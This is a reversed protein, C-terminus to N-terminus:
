RLNKFTKIFQPKLFSNMEYQGCLGKLKIADYKANPDLYPISKHMLFKRYFYKLDIMKKNLIMLEALKENDIKGFKDGSILFEKVSGYKELLQSTRKPGMGPYGPIHDSKDGMLSLYDVCQYAHYGVEKHMNSYGYIKGKTTNYISIEGNTDDPAQALQNFDKDGSVIIVDWGKIAYRRAVMAILDDAEMYKQWVISLGLAMFTDRGIDKQRYFDDKDFGLKQDRQKYSPLLGMRFQDRGGDFTVVVKNPDLRRILSEAVYPMGYIVGTKVGDLTKLNSFKYLARYALHNGDFIVLKRNRM